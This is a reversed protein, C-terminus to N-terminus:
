PSLKPVLGTKLSISNKPVKLFVQDGEKFHVLRCKQYVFKKYRDQAQRVNLRAIRLM